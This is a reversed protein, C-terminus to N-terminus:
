NLKVDYDHSIFGVFGSNLFQSITHQFCSNVSNVLMFAVARSMYASSLLSM